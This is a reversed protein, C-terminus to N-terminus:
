RNGVSTSRIEGNVEILTCSGTCTSRKSAKQAAAVREFLYFHFQIQEYMNYNLKIKEPKPVLMKHHITFKDFTASFVTMM